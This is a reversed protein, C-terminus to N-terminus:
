VFDVHEPATELAYNIVRNKNNFMCRECSSANFSAIRERKEDSNWMEIFRQDKLSGLYGHPNYATNCCRYVSLDAGIYTM